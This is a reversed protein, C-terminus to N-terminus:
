KIYFVTNIHIILNKIKFLKYDSNKEPSYKKVINLIKCYKMFCINKMPMYLM